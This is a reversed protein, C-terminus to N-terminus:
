VTSAYTNVTSRDFNIEVVRNSKNFNTKGGFILISCESGPKKVILAGEFGQHLSYPLKRWSSDGSSYSQIARTRSNNGSYGGFVYIFEGYLTVSAAARPFQMSPISKWKNSGFDFMECASLLGNEDTGYQRGGIVYLSKNLQISCHAYRSNIMDPM